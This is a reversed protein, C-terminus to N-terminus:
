EYDEVKYRIRSLGIEPNRNLETELGARDLVPKRLGDVRLAALIPFGTQFNKAIKNSLKVNKEGNNRVKMSIDAGITSLKM